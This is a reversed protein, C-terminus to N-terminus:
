TSSLGALHGNHIGTYVKLIGSHSRRATDPAASLVPPKSIYSPTSSRCITEVTNATYAWTMTIGTNTRQAFASLCCSCFVSQTSATAHFCTYDSGAQAPEFPYHICVAVECKLRDCVCWAERWSVVFLHLLASHLIMKTTPTREALTMMPDSRCLYM